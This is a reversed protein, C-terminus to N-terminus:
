NEIEIYINGTDARLVCKGGESDEPVIVKGTDSEADFDKGSLLSGTISGTDTEIFIEAGDCGELRVNGTSREISLSKRAVVNKLDARGTDATSILSECEVNELKLDGTSASLDITKATIDALYIDGTTTKMKIESGDAYCEIDGTSASVDIVEFDFKESLKVDGTSLDVRLAEYEGEPIYVTIKPSAFNITIHDYWKREDQKEIVLEGDLVKATHKEKKSEYCVVTCKEKESPLIQVDATDTLISISELEGSIEHENTEYQVNSLKMFDWKIMTMVWAFLACGVVVLLVAIVLWIKTAKSM